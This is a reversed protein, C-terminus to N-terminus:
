IIQGFFHFFLFPFFFVDEDALFGVDHIRANVKSSKISQVSSLHRRPLVRGTKPHAHSMFRCESTPGQLRHLMPKQSLPPKSKFAFRKTIVVPITWLWDEIDNKRIVDDEVHHVRM